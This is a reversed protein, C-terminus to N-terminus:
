NNTFQTLAQRRRQGLSETFEAIEPILRVPQEIGLAVVVGMFFAERLYQEQLAPVEGSYSDRLLQQFEQELYNM